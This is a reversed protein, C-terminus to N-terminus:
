TEGGEIEELVEGEQRFRYRKKQQDSFIDTYTLELHYSCDELHDELVAGGTDILLERKEGSGWKKLRIEDQEYFKVSVLTLDGKGHNEIAVELINPDRHWPLSSLLQLVPAARKNKYAQNAQQSKEELELGQFAAESQAILAKTQSSLEERTLNLERAQLFYGVILWLFALPSFVGALFDGLENADNPLDYKPYDPCNHTFLLIVFVIWLVSLVSAILLLSPKNKM